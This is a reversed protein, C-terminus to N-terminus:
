RRDAEAFRDAQAYLCAALTVAKGIGQHRASPVVGVQYIGAVGYEGTTFLDMMSAAVDAVTDSDFPLAAEQLAFGYVYSDILAYAHATTEVSFGAARLVGLM